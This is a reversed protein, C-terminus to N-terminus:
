SGSLRLMERVLLLTHAKTQASADDVPGVCSPCGDACPCAAILEEAARLLDRHLEYLREAFGVGGPFDDYLYITPRRTGPARVSASAGLDQPSAMLFLPALHVLAHALGHLGSEAAKSTEIRTHCNHCVTLLNGLDNAQLYRTNEGPVYGFERFPVLHHVDHQRGPREPAGCLRCRYGDRQRALERQAEWNPGYDAIPEVDWAGSARLVEVVVDPVTLWYATTDMSQEPLNVEGWGLTEHTYMKVKRFGTVRRTVRVDGFARGSPVDEQAVRLVAVDGASMAETYYDARVPRVVARGEGWEVSEVLYQRGEHMYIAGPYLFKPASARDLVGIACPRGEEDVSEITFADADAARLSLADAPYSESMWYWTGAAHRLVGEHELRALVGPTAEAAGLTEGDRFPLEFAACRIHSELIRPNDPHILAHEPSRGFFYDPHRVIYQDLPDASAVLVAVSAGRRRGARGAQQWTSAITGPYGAMICADLNGIDIGLELANTSVVARASGDRLAKEIQRREAPLYGGRYGHVADPNLDRKRLADRLYTLLVETSQRSRAFVITQVDMEVARVSLSLAELLAGRRLGSQADLLPPNYFVLHKEGKPSGDDDILVIDEEVLKRSLELPNGITASCCIFQPLTGYFACIRKLRRLVNAVHSGFVGRYTHIEDLVVFRLHQFFGMWNTHHPLIGQHLMDPNTIVIRASRRIAARTNAPTDGDYVVPAINASLRSAWDKLEALQDQSLAKTPFLYLARARPDRLLADLVPLNYCLTKGSATPTVVAVHRGERAAQWAIAQHVYLGRIGKAELAAALEPHCEAPLPSLRAARPELRKWATVNRAFDPAHELEALLAAIGM